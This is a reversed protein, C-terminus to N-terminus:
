ALRKRLVQQVAFNPIGNYLEKKSCGKSEPLKTRKKSVILPEPLKTTHEAACSSVALNVLDSSYALRLYV